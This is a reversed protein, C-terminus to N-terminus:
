LEIINLSLDPILFIVPEQKLFVAHRRGCVLFLALLQRGNECDVRLTPRYM